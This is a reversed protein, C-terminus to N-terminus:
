GRDNELNGKERAESYHSAKTKGQKAQESYCFKGESCRTPEAKTWQVNCTQVQFLLMVVSLSRFCFLVFCEFCWLFM